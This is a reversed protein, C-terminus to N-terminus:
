DGAVVGRLTTAPAERVAARLEEDSRFPGGRLERAEISVPVEAGGFPDPRVLVCDGAPQVTWEGHRQEDPSGTCFALSILDGLRVFAYDALLDDLALGSEALRADRSAEMEAFFATWEPAPRFRDYVFVAHHAVLAAAWPDDALRAVSRPWVAQRVEVPLRVFDLVGGTEPDVRPAADVETWAADHEGVARLISERRRRAALSACREMVERALHAHDPQTILLVREGAPRVIM